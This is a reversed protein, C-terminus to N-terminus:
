LHTNNTSSRVHIHIDKKYHIFTDVVYFLFDRLLISIVLRNPDVIHQYKVQINEFCTNISEIHLTSIHSATWM